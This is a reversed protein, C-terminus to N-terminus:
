DRHFQEPGKKWDIYQGAEVRTGVVESMADGVDHLRAAIAEYYKRRERVHQNLIHRQDRAYYDGGKQANEIYKNLETIRPTYLRDIARVVQAQMM